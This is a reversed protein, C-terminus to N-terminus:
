NKVGIYIEVEENNFNIKYANGSKQDELVSNTANEFTEKNKNIFENLENSNTYISIKNNRTLKMKKRIDQISRILDRLLKENKLEDSINKDVYANGYLFEIGETKIVPVFILDNKDIRFTKVNNIEVFGKEDISKKVELANM